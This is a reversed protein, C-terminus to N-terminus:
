DGVAPPACLWVEPAMWRLPVIRDTKLRYYDRNDTVERSLGYDSVKCVLDLGVLVNRAALDRHVIHRAHLNQMGLAVQYLVYLQEVLRGGAHSQLWAELSGGPLFELVLMLPLRKTVVGLLCVVNPHRLKMMLQMEARFEADTDVAPDERLLKVAVLTTDGPRILDRAAMKNVVGFAGSGLEQLLTLKSPDMEWRDAGYVALELLSVATSVPPRADPVQAACATLLKRVPEGFDRQGAQLDSPDMPPPVPSALVEFVTAALSYVDSAASFQGIARATPCTWALLDAPLDAHVGTASFGCVVARGELSVRLNAACVRRHTIGRVHLFELGTGAELLWKVRQAVAFSRSQLLERVTGTPELAHLLLGAEMCVGAFRIVYEHRLTQWVQLDAHLQTADRVREGVCKPFQTECL